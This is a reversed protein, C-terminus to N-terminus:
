ISKLFKKLEEKDGQAMGKLKENKGVDEMVKEVEKDSLGEESMVCKETEFFVKMLEVKEEGSVKVGSNEFVKGAVEAMLLPNNKYM